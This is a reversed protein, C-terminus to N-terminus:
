FLGVQTRKLSLYKSIIIWNYMLAHYFYSLFLDPFNNKNNLKLVSKKSELIM